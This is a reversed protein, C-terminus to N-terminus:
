KDLLWYERLFYINNILLYIFFYISDVGDYLCRWVVMSYDVKHWM